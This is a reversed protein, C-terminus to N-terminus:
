TCFELQKEQPVKFISNFNFTGINSQCNAQAGVVGIIERQFFGFEFDMFGAMLITSKVLSCLQLM